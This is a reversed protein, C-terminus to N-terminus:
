AMGMVNWVYTIVKPCVAESGREVKLFVKKVVWESIKLYKLLNQFM